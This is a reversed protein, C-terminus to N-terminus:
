KNGHRKLVESKILHDLEDIDKEELQSNSLLQDLLQLKKAQRWMAKRAVESWNIENHEKVFTHLDNPLALTMNPMTQFRHTTHTFVYKFSETNM